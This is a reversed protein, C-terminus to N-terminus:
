PCLFVRRRCVVLRCRLLRSCRCLVLVRGAVLLRWIRRIRRLRRLVIWPVRLLGFLTLRLGVMLRRLWRLLGLWSPLRLLVWLVVVLRGLRWVTM